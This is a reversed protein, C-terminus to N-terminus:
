PAKSQLLPAKMGLWASYEPTGKMGHTRPSTLGCIGCSKKLGGKAHTPLVKTSRGCDCVCNLKRSATGRPEASLVTLFGYRVGIMHEYDTRPGGM